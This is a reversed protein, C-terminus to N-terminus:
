NWRSYNEIDLVICPRQTYHAHICAYANTCTHMCMYASSPQRCVPPACEGTNTGAFNTLFGNRNISDVKTYCCGHYLTREAPTGAPTQQVTDKRHAQYAQWLQLNQIREIKVISVRRRVSRQFETEIEKFEESIKEVEVM